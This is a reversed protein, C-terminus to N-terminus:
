LNAIEMDHRDVVVHDSTDSKVRVLGFGARLDRAQVDLLRVLTPSVSDFQHPM